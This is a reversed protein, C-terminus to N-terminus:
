GATPLLATLRTPSRCRAATNKKKVTDKIVDQIFVYRANTIISESDDDLEEECEKIHKELHDKLEQTLHLPAIVDEDREYCKVSYWRLREGSAAAELTEKTAEEIGQNKLASIEVTRCGLEKGLKEAGFCIWSIFISIGM